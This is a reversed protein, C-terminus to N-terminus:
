RALRVPSLGARRHLVPDDGQPQALAPRHPQGEGAGGGLAPAQPRWGREVDASVEFPLGDASFFRFGYGGGYSELTKPAFIIRCGAAQVKAFLEDVSAPSDTALGIVDIRALDSARLRVVYKEDSGEAAFYILGDREAVEKLRWSDQYFQREAALDPCGYGVYRIETVRSM